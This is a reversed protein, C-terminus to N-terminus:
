LLSYRDHVQSVLLGLSHIASRLTQPLSLYMCCTRYATATYRSISHASVTELIASCCPVQTTTLFRRYVLSPGRFSFPAITYARVVMSATLMDPLTIRTYRIIRRSSWLSITAHDKSFSFRTSWTLNGGHQLWRFAGFALRVLFKVYM